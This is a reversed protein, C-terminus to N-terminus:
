SPEELRRWRGVVVVGILLAGTALLGGEPGFNGGTLWAPTGPEFDIWPIDFANGSVPAALGALALNWGLHAGTATWLGGRAFFTLGLFAGAVAINGFGIATVGTNDRHALSFLVSTVLVAGLRGVGRAMGAIAAGRFALEEMLAAPLLLGALLALRALYSGFGGGDLRWASHAALGAAQAAVALGLALGFGKLFGPLGVRASTWGLEARSLRLARRGILWTLGGFVLTGVVSQILLPGTTGVVLDPYRSEAAVFVGVTVAGMTLYGLVM